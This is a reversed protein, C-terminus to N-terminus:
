GILPRRVNDGVLSPCRSADSPEVGNYYVIRPYASLCLRQSMAPDNAMLKPLYKQDVATVYTIRPDTEVYRLPGGVTDKIRVAGLSAQADIGIDSLGLNIHGRKWPQKKCISVLSYEVDKNDFSDDWHSLVDLIVEKKWFAPSTSGARCTRRQFTIFDHGSDFLQQIHFQRSVVKDDEWCIADNEVKEYCAKLAAAMGVNTESKLFVVDDFLKPGIREVQSLTDEWGESMADVWDVHVIWRLRWKDRDLFSNFMSQMATEVCRRPVVTTVVDVWLKGPDEQVGDDVVVPAEDEEVSVVQPVGVPVSQSPAYPSIPLKMRGMHAGLRKDGLPDTLGYVDKLEWFKARWMKALPEKGTHKSGHFHAIKVGSIDKGHYKVSAGWDKPALYHEYWPLLIQAAIEDPIFLGKQVGLPVIKEWDKLMPHGKSFGFVGTNIASGYDLAAQLLEPTLDHWENIRKMITKGRTAWNAFNVFLMGAQEIWSFLQDIPAVVLTDADLFVTSDFQSWKLIATKSYNWTSNIPEFQHVQAGLRTTLDTLLPHVDGENFVLIPGKYHERLSHMSVVM